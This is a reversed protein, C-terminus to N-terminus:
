ILTSIELYIYGSPCQWVKFKQLCGLTKKCIDLLLITLVENYLM